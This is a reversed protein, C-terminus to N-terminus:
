SSEQTRGPVPNEDLDGFALPGNGAISELGCHRCLELHLAEPDGLRHAGDEDLLPHSGPVDDELDGSAHLLVDDLAGMAPLRVIGSVAVAVAPEATGAALFRHLERVPPDRLFV